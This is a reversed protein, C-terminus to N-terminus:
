KRESRTWMPTENVQIFNELNKYIHLVSKKDTQPCFNFKEGLSLVNEIYDPLSNKTLNILWKNVNENASDISNHNLNM